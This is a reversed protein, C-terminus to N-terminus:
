VKKLINKFIDSLQENDKLAIGIHEVGLVKIM